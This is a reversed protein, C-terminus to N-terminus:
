ARGFAHRLLARPAGGGRRVGAPLLTLAHLRSTWHLRAARAARRWGRARMTAGYQAFFEREGAFRRDDLLSEMSASEAHRRYSFCVTPVILLRAGLLVQDLVIALDQIFEYTDSFPTRRLSETRFVLSPWYMWDAALLSAALAEGGVLREGSGRPMTLRQKVVDALPAQVAGDGDIVQVGPQIIEVGPHRDIAGTVVEVYNPLLVDDAGLFVLYPSEALGLCTRFNATIGENVPKRVYRIRDDGLSELWPGMWPDPNADDVVTLRWDPSTQARVSEVAERAYAEDGWYPLMIDLAM